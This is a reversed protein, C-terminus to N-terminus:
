HEWGSHEMQIKSRPEPQEAALAILVIREALAAEKQYVRILM